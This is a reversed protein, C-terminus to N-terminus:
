CHSQDAAPSRQLVDVNLRGLLGTVPRFHVTFETCHTQRRGKKQCPEFRLEIRDVLTALAEAKVEAPLAEEDSEALWEGLQQFVEMAEDFGRHEDAARAEAEELRAAEALLQDREEKWRRVQGAMDEVLDAPLLAIKEVGQRAKDALAEAQRRLTRAKGATAKVGRGIEGEIAERVGRIGEPSGLAHRVADFVLPLLDDEAIWNNTCGGRGYVVYAGCVYRRVAVKCGGRAPAVVGYMRHGCTRCFALGSLPWKHSRREPQSEGPRFSVSNATLTRQVREFLEVDVIAPHANEVTIVDEPPSVV